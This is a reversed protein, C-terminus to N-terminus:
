GSSRAASSTHLFSAKVAPKSHLGLAFKLRSPKWWTADNRSSMGNNGKLELLIEQVKEEFIKKAEEYVPRDLDDHVDGKCDSPGYDHKSSRVHANEVAYYKEGLLRHFLCVSLDWEEVLGVFSFGARLRKVARATDEQTLNVKANCPYGLIMKTTCGQAPLKSAYEVPCRAGHLHNCEKSNRRAPNRVADCEHFDNNEPNCDKICHHNGFSFASLIRSAPERVFTVFSGKNEQWEQKGIPKHTGPSHDVLRPCWDNIPYLDNVSLEFRRDYAAVSANEKIQPCGYHWVTNAFSTGTKPIHLWRISPSHESSTYPNADADCILTRDEASLTLSSCHPLVALLLSLSYCM